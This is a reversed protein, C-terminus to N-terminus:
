ASLFGQIARLPSRRETSLFPFYRHVYQASYCHREVILSQQEFQRFRSSIIEEESLLVLCM